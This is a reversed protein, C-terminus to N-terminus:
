KKNILEWYGVDILRGFKFGIERFRAGRKMGFKENQEADASIVQRIHM